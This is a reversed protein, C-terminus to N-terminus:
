RAVNEKRPASLDDKPKFKCVKNELQKVETETSIGLARSMDFGQAIAKIIPNEIKAKEREVLINYIKVFREAVGWTGQIIDWSGTQRVAQGIIPNSWEASHWSNLKKRVEEWAEFATPFETSNPRLQRVTDLIEGPLPLTAIKRERMIKVIATKGEEFTVDPLLMAMTAAPATLDKGQMNPMALAPISLILAAEGQTM